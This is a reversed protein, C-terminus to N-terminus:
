LSIIIVGPGPLLKGGITENKGGRTDEAEWLNCPNPNLKRGGPPRGSLTQIQIREM